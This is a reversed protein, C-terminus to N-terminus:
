CFLNRAMPQMGVHYQLIRHPLYSSFPTFPIELKEM